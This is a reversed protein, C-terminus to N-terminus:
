RDRFAEHCDQCGSLMQTFSDFLKAKTEPAQNRQVIRAHGAFHSAAKRFALGKEWLAQSDRMDSAAGSPKGGLTGIGLEKEAIEAARDYRGSALAEAVALLGDVHRHMQIIKLNATTETTAPKSQLDAAAMFPSAIVVSMSMIAAFITAITVPRDFM